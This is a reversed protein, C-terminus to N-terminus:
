PKWTITGIRQFIYCIELIFFPQLSSQSCIYMLPFFLALCGEVLEVPPAEPNLVYAYRSPDGVKMQVQKHNPSARPYSKWRNYMQVLFLVTLLSKWSAFTRVKPHGLLFRKRGYFQVYFNNDMDWHAATTAGGEGMWVSFYVWTQDKLKLQHRPRCDKLLSEPIQIETTFVPRRAREVENGRRRFVLLRRGHHQLGKRVMRGYAYPVRTELRREGLVGM